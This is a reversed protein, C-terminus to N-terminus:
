EPVFPVLCYNRLCKTSYSVVRPSISRRGKKKYTFCEDEEVQSVIKGVIAEALNKDRRGMTVRERRRVVVSAEERERGVDCSVVTSSTTEDRWCVCCMREISGVREESVVVVAAFSDMGTKRLEEEGSERSSWERSM